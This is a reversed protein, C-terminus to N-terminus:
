FNDILPKSDPKITISYKSDIELNLKKNDVFDANLKIDKRALIYTIISYKNKSEGSVKIFKRKKKLNFGKAYYGNIKKINLEENSYFNWNLKKIAKSQYIDNIM